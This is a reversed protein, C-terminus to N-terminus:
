IKNKSLLVNDKCLMKEWVDYLYIHYPFEEEEQGEM